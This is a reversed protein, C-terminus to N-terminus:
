KRSYNRPQPKGDASDIVALNSFVYYLSSTIMKMTECTIEKDFRGKFNDVCLFGIIEDVGDKSPNKIACVATANYFKPWSPRSNEYEGMVYERYLDNNFYFYRRSKEGIIYKFATNELASFEEGDAFFRTASSLPDRVTKVIMPPRADSAVSPESLLKICVSCNDGTLTDFITKTRQILGIVYRQTADNLDIEPEIGHYKKSYFSSLGTRSDFIQRLEKLTSSLLLRAEGSTKEAISKQVYLEYHAVASVTALLLCLMSLIVSLYTLGSSERDSWVWGLTSAVLVVLAAGWLGTLLYKRLATVWRRAGIANM